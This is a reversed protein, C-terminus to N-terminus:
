ASPTRLSSVVFRDMQGPGIHNFSRTCVIDLGYGLSFVRSLQKQAVRAVAYPKMPNLSRTEHLPVDQSSVPGYEESSGV